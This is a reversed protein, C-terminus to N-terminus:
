IAFRMGDLAVKVRGDYQEVYAELEALTVPEDYHMALHTLYITGADLAFGEEITEQVSHHDNPNWNRKWFTADLVLVDVGRVAEVTEPPLPGTDSAYFLKTKPTEVLYGFTGPAHTVPLATYRVGDYEVNDFPELVHEDLCYTMYHFERGIGELALASGYTPLTEKTVLQVMYELEGLGGIHDFHAHTYLLRDLAKVGERNFQHRIDPPTDIVLRKGGEIMVGCDGRRARPDRRAEECAPCECFFAPVGCGAGTGLFTFTHATKLQGDSKDLANTQETRHQEARDTTM